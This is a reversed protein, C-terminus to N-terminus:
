PSAKIGCFAVTGVLKTAAQPESLVLTTFPGNPKQLAERIAANLGPDPISVSQALTSAVFGTLVPVILVLARIFKIVPKMHRM